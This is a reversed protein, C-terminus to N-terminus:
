IFNVRDQLAKDLTSFSPPKHEDSLWLKELTGNHRLSKILQLSSEVSGIAGDLWLIKLCQNRKLVGAFAAAGESAIPNGSIYLATVACNKEMAKALRVAEKGQISCQRMDLKALHKNMALMEAFAAVGESGIPNDSIDLYSVTFNLKMAHALCVAGEGQISCCRMYIESLSKNRALMTAFAETGESCIPNGSLKLTQLQTATNENLAKVLRAFDGSLISCYRIDLNKLRTNVKLVSALSLVNESSFHSSCLLLKELSTSHSVGGVIFQISDPSLANGGINLVEINKSSALLESLAKCDEFGIGTCYLNLERITNFKTLSTILNVTGGRDISNDTLNLYEIHKLLDTHKSLDNCTESTLRSSMLCLHTLNYFVPNAVFVKVAAPTSWRFWLGKIKWPLLHQEQQQNVTRLFMEASELQCHQLELKWDCSSHTICYGLVYWDLPLTNVCSYCFCVCDSGLVSTIASHDQSEFLWHLIELKITEEELLSGHPKSAFGRVVDWLDSRLESLGALFRSVVHLNESQTHERMFAVQEDRSQQSIYYATLFEQLTLHLFNYSLSTGRDIYLEPYTQMLGLSDFDCCLDQGNFILKTEASVIGTYALKCIECFIDYVPQPLDKFSSIYANKYKVKDKMYRLLLTRILCSYLQTVTKRVVTHCNSKCSSYTHTVIAANLPVYMMSRICPYLALYEKFDSRSQEDSFANHIYKDIDKKGFGVVELIRSNESNCLHHLEASASPRTTLIVTAKPLEEGRFVRIFISDMTRKTDSVEDFGELILLLRQGGTETIVNVIESQLKCNPHYFLDSVSKAEQVRRDQFQLLVVLSYENFLQHQGWKQCMEWAFTSKGIGPAGIILVQTALHKTQKHGYVCNPKLIDEVAIPDSSLVEQQRFMLQEEGGAYANSVVTLNIYKRAKLYPWKTSTFPKNYYSQLHNAYIGLPTGPLLLPPHVPFDLGSCSLLM